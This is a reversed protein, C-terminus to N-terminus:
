FRYGITTILSFATDAVSIPSDAATGTLQSVQANVTFTWSTAIRYSAMVEAGIDKIGATTNYARYGSNISQTGTIGFYTQMYTSDAWTAFAKGIVTFRDNIRWPVGITAEILIGSNGQVLYKTFTSGLMVPGLKYNVFGRLGPAAPIDGLGYLRWNNQGFLGSNQSRGLDFTIGGGIQLGDFRWYANLGTNDLAIMDRWVVQVLPLPTVSYTDSGEYNPNFVGGVGLTVAWDKGTRLPAFRDNMPQAAASTLTLPFLTGLALAVFKVTRRHLM